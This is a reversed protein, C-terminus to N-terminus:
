VEDKLYSLLIEDVKCDGSVTDIGLAGAKKRTLQHVRKFPKKRPAADEANGDDAAGADAVAKKVKAPQRKSSKAKGRKRDARRKLPIEDSESSSLNDIIDRIQM